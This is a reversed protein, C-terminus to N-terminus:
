GVGGLRAGTVLADAAAPLHVALWVMCAALIGVLAAGILLSGWGTREPEVAFPNRSEPPIEVGREAHLEPIPRHPNMPPRIM